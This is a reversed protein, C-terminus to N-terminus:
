NWNNDAGTKKLWDYYVAQNDAIKTWELMGTYLTANTWADIGYDHLYGASGTKQYTFNKIQWDAVKQMVTKLESTDSSISSNRTASCVPQISFLVLLIFSIITISKKM